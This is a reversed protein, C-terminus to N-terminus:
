LRLGISSGFCLRGTDRVHLGCRTGRSGSAMCSSRLPWFPEAAATHQVPGSQASPLRDASRRRFWERARAPRCNARGEWDTLCLYM